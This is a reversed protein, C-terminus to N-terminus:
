KSTAAKLKAECNPYLSDTLGKRQPQSATSDMATHFDASALVDEPTVRSPQGKILAVRGDLFSKCHTPHNTFATWLEMTQNQSGSTTQACATAAVAMAATSLLTKIMKNM